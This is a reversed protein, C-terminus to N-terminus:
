TKHFYVRTWECYVVSLILIIILSLMLLVEANPASNCQDELNVKRCLNTIIHYSSQSINYCVYRRQRLPYTVRLILSISLM